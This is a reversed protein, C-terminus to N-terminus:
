ALLVERAENLVGSHRCRGVCEVVVDGGIISSIPIAPL